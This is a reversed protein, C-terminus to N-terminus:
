EQRRPAKELISTLTEPSYGGDIAMGYITIKTHRRNGHHVYEPTGADWGISADVVKGGLAFLDLGARCVVMALRSDDRKTVYYRRPDGDVTVGLMYGFREAAPFDVTLFM